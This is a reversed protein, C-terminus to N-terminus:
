SKGCLQDVDMKAKIRAEDAETDSLYVREGKENTRYIARAEISRTYNDQAAKCQESRKDALDRQVTQKARSEALNAAQQAAVPDGVTAPRAATAAAPAPPPTTTTQHGTIRIVTAGPTPRDSCDRNQQLCYIEAAAASGTMILSTALTIVYRM